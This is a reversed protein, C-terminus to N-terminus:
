GPVLCHESLRAPAKGRCGRCIASNIIWHGSSNVWFIDVFLWGFLPSRTSLLTWSIDGFLTWSFDGKSLTRSIDGFKSFLTWLIDSDVFHRWGLNKARFFIQNEVWLFYKGFNKLSKNLTRKLFFSVVNVMSNYSKYSNKPLNKSWIRFKEHWYRWFSM